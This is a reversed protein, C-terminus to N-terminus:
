ELTSPDCDPAATVVNCGPSGAKLALSYSRGAVPFPLDDKLMHVGFAIATDRKQACEADSKDVSCTNCAVLLRRSLAADMMEADPFQKTIAAWPLDYQARTASAFMLKSALTTYNSTYKKAHDDETNLLIFVLKGRVESLRPWGEAALRERPSAYGAALDDPTLLSDRPFVRHITQEVIDLSSFAAGGTSDKIEFWVFIPVHSPKTARFSDIDRLCDELRECSTGDDLVAIHYVHVEGDTGMHLDLEFTRVGGALQEHLPRHTYKHSADIAFAPAQHYSNHTGAVQIQDLRLAPQSGGSGADGADGAAPGGTDGGDARDVGGGDGRSGAGGDAGGATGGSPGSGAIAADGGTDAPAAGGTEPGLTGAGSRDEPAGSASSGSPDFATQKAAGGEGSCGPAATLAFWSLLLLTTPRHM